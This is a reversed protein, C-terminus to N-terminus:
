NGKGSFFTYDGARVTGGKDWRVEQVGVLDLKYRALERAVTMLSGSRYLSRVNWTGFRMDRKWQTPQIVTLILIKNVTKSYLAPFPRYHSSNCKRESFPCTRDYASLHQFLPTLIYTKYKYLNITLFVPGIIRTANIVCWVYVKVDHLSV